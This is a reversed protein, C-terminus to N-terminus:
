QKSGFAMRSATYLRFVQVIGVFLTINECIVAFRELEAVLIAIVLQSHANNSHHITAVISCNFSSHFAVALSTTRIEQIVQFVSVNVLHYSCHTISSVAEGFTIHFVGCDNVLQALIETYTEFANNFQTWVLNLWTLQGHLVQTYLSAICTLEQTTFLQSSQRSLSYWAFALLHKLSQQNQSQLSQSQTILSSM